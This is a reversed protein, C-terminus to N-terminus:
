LKKLFRDELQTDFEKSDYNFSLNYFGDKGAKFELEVSANEATDTM